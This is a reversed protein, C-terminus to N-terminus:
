CSFTHAVPDALCIHGDRDFLINGAQELDLVAHTAAIVEAVVEFASGLGLVDKHALELAVMRDVQWQRYGSLRPALEWHLHHTEAILTSVQQREFPSSAERLRDLRFGEFGFNSADRACHGFQEQVIPLGGVSRSETRMQNVKEYLALTPLCCTVKFVAQHAEAGGSAFAHVRSNMGDRYFGLSGQQLHWDYASGPVPQLTTHLTSCTEFKTDM